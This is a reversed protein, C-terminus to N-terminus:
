GRRVAWAHFDSKAKFGVGVAGDRTYLVWAYRPEYVSTTSSWYGDAVGDFPHDPLLAPSHSNMDALSELERINPLRWDNYGGAAPRNMAKVTELAEQWTVPFGASDAPRRWML